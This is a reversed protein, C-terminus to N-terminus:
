PAAHVPRRQTLVRIRDRERVQEGEHLYLPSQKMKELAREPTMEYIDLRIFKLGAADQSIVPVKVLTSGVM